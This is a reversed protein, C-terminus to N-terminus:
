GLPILELRPFREYLVATDPPHSLYVVDCLYACINELLQKNFKSHVRVGVHPAIFTCNVIYSSDNHCVISSLPISHLMSHLDTTMLSILRWHSQSTYQTVYFTFRNFVTTDVEQPVCDTSKNRRVQSLGPRPPFTTM